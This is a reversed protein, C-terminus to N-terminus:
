ARYTAAIGSLDPRRPALYNRRRPHVWSGVSILSRVSSGNWLAEIRGDKWRLDIDHVHLQLNYTPDLEVGCELRALALNFVFQNCWGINPREALWRDAERMGAIVGDVALL